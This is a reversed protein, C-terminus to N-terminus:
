LSIGVRAANNKYYAKALAKTHGTALVIADIIVDYSQLRSHGALMIARAIAAKSTGSPFSATSVKQEPATGITYSQRAQTVVPDIVKGSVVPTTLTRGRAGVIVHQCGPALSGQRGCTYQAGRQIKNHMIQSVRVPHGLTTTYEYTVGKSFVVDESHRTKGNGGLSVCVRKWGSDHGSGLRPVMMCIIHAYEHPVTHNLVHDFADRTLMDANFRISYVNGRRMAVGAARGRLDFRVSVNSLDIGYTTKVTEIIANCRQIIQQQPSIM